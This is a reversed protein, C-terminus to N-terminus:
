GFVKDGMQDIIQRAKNLTFEAAQEQSPFKDARIFRHSKAEGGIEKQIVGCMQWQGDEQYPTAQITFGNHEATAAPGPEVKPTSGGGFLKKFFSM